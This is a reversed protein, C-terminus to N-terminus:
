PFDMIVQPIERTGKCIICLTIRRFASGEVVIWVVLIVLMAVVFSGTIMYDRRSDIM